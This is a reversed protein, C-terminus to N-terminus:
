IFAINCVELVTLPNFWIEWKNLCNLSLVISSYKIALLNLCAHQSSLVVESGTLSSAIYLLM